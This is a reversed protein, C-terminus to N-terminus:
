DTGTRTAAISGDGEFVYFTDPGKVKIRSNERFIPAAAKKQVSVRRLCGACLCGTEQYVSRFSSCCSEPNEELSKGQSGEGDPIRWSCM